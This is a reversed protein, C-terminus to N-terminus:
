RIAVTITSPSGATGVAISVSVASSPTIGAPVRANIQLVGAVLTPAAGAYIVDAGQGGIMVSVPLKPKPYVDNALKGDAGPPDTQGEGTCFLVIISGRDAPNAASNVSSDQNLIAGQGRGSADASFIAPSSSAVPVTIANSAVGAYEVVVQASAAGDLAYPVVVGLVDFRAFLIPAEVGSFRVKVGAIQTAYRGDAGPAAQVLQQPGVGAGFVSVIEGPAVPGSVFSAGNVVSNSVLKPAVNTLSFSLMTNLGLPTATVTFLGLSTNAICVFEARGNRDTRVSAAATMCAPANFDVRVNGAPTGDQNLVLVALPDAYRTGISATQPTGGGMQARANAPALVAGYRIARIRRNGSDSFILDGERDILIGNGGCCSTSVSAQTAPGGDGSFGFRDGALSQVAGAPSVRFVRGESGSYVNDASDVTMYPPHFGRTLTSITGNRDMKRIANNATDAILLEGLSNIAVGYPTNLCAELAPGGDGCYTGSNYREYGNVPGSGAITTIVGTQVDVRRVRNNNTDAIIVNGDHDLIADWPQCLGAARAPGGDGSYACGGDGIGAFRHVIGLPDIKVVHTVTAMYISGDPALELSPGGWPAQIAPANDLPGSFTGNGAVISISNDLGIKIVRGSADAALLESTPLLAMGSTQLNAALVGRDQGYIAPSIGAVTEVIGAARNLRMVRNITADTYVINGQADLTMGILLGLRVGAIPTGDFTPTNTNSTGFRELLDGNRNTHVIQSSAFFYVDGSPSTMVSRLDRLSLGFNRDPGAFTDITGAALDIRRLRQNTTDTLYLFGASDYALSGLDNNQLNFQANKAPGGDGSFGFTGTGCITDVKGDPSIRRIRANGWDIFWITGKRDGTLHDPDSLLASTAPGGDGSFGRQGNGAITRAIGTAADVRWIRNGADGDTFVVDGNDEVLVERTSVVSIGLAPGGNGVSADDSAAPFVGSGAFPELIGNPKVRSIRHSGAEGIYLSGDSGYSLGWGSVLAERAPGYDGFYNGVGAITTIYGPPLDQLKPPLYIFTTTATGSTTSVRLVAYGNDHKPATFLIQDATVSSPTVASRDITVAAGALNAGRVSMVTGGAIPVQNPSISDIRPAQALLTSAALCATACSLRAPRCCLGM